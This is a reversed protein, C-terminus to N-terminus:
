EAGAPGEMMSVELHFGSRAIVCGETAFRNYTRSELVQEEPGCIFNRGWDAAVTVM